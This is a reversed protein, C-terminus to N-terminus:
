TYILYIRTWLFYHVGLIYLCNEKGRWEFMRVSRNGALMERWHWGDSIAELLLSCASCTKKQDGLYFPNLCSAWCYSARWPFAHPSSSSGSDNSYGKSHCANNRHDLSPSVWLNASLFPFVQHSFISLM